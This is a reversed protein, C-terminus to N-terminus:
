SCAPQPLRDDHERMGPSTLVGCWAEYLGNAEGAWGRIEDRGEGSFRGGTFPGLPVRSISQNQMLNKCVNDPCAPEHSRRIFRCGIHHISRADCNSTAATAAQIQNPTLRPHYGRLRPNLEIPPDRHLIAASWPSRARWHSARRSIMPDAAVVPASCDARFAEGSLKLELL